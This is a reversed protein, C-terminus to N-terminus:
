YAEIWSTYQMGNDGKDLKGYFSFGDTTEWYANTRTVYSASCDLQTFSQLIEGAHRLYDEEFALVAQEIAKSRTEWDPTKWYLKQHLEKYLIKELCTLITATVADLSFLGYFDRDDYDLESDKAPEDSIHITSEKRSIKVREVWLDFCDPIDHKKMLDSLVSNEFNIWIGRNPLTMRDLLRLELKETEDIGWWDPLHLPASNTQGDYHNQAFWIRNPFMVRDRSIIDRASWTRLYDDIPLKEGRERTDHFCQQYDKPDNSLLFSIWESQDEFLACVTQRFDATQNGFNSAIIQLANDPINLVFAAWKLPALLQRADNAELHQIRTLHAMLNEGCQEECFRCASHQSELTATKEEVLWDPGFMVLNSIYTHHGMSSGNAQRNLFDYEEETLDAIRFFVVDNVDDCYFEVRGDKCYYCIDEFDEHLIIEIKDRVLNVVCPNSEASIYDYCCAEDTKKLHTDCRYDPLMLNPERLTPKLCLCRIDIIDGHSEKIEIMTNRDGYSVIESQWEQYYLGTEIRFACNNEKITFRCAPRSTKEPPWIPLHTHANILMGDRFFYHHNREPMIFEQLKACDEFSGEGIKVVTNPISISTLNLFGCFAYDGISTVGKGIVVSRVLWALPEWISNNPQYNDMKGEGDIYLIEGLLEWTVHDGCLGSDCWDNMASGGKM